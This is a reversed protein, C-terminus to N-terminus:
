NSQYKAFFTVNPRVDDAGGAKRAVSARLAAVAASSDYRLSKEGKLLRVCRLMKGSEPLLPCLHIKAQPPEDAKSGFRVNQM